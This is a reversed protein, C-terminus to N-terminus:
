RGAPQLELLAGHQGRLDAAAAAIAAQEVAAFRAPLEAVLEARGHITEISALSLTRDLVADLSRWHGAGLGAIVRDLESPTPGESALRELEEDVVALLEDTTAVGPHFAVIQFLVPDRMYFTDNGFAGLICGVDTVSHDEYVLRRRLRSADGDSLVSALVAYAAYAELDNVPDPSRYGVAFAAQPALPDEITTRRDSTPAPERYPGHAPAPRRGIGGFHREALSFVEDPKCDGCVVLV